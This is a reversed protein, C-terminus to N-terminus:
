YFYYEDPTKRNFLITVGLELSLSFDYRLEDEVSRTDFNFARRNKTFGQIGNVGAFFGLLRNNPFYRYHVSEKLLIGNTLRDYGKAYEEQVQPIYFEKSYLLIKHQMFGGGLSAAISGGKNGLRFVKGLTVDALFGRQWLFVNAIEGEGTLIYGNENTLGDLINTQKITDRFLFSGGFRWLFGNKTRIEYRAGVESFSLFRKSLDMFPLHYGYSFSIGNHVESSDRGISHGQLSIFLVLIIVFSIRMKAETEEYFIIM